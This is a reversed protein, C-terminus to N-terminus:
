AVAPAVAPRMANYVSIRWFILAIIINVIPLFLGFETTFYHTNGTNVTIVDFVSQVLVNHMTHLVVAPWLSGSAQRLWAYAFSMAVVNVMFCSVTFWAPAGSTYGGALILPVHWLGWVIGSIIATQVFPQFRLLQPVLLGRWGIEEGIALILGLISGVTLTTLLSQWFNDGLASTNIAGLGFLWVAGYAVMCYVFPLLYAIAYYIPRGLGWGLERLNRQFYYTIALASLGPMLMLPMVWVEGDGEFGGNRNVLVYFITSLAFTLVLFAIVRRRADNLDM